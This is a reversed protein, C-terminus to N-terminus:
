LALQFLDCWFFLPIKLPTPLHQWVSSILNLSVLSLSLSQPCRSVLESQRCQLLLNLLLPLGISLVNMMFKSYQLWMGFLWSEHPILILPYPLCWISLGKLSRSEKKTRHSLVLNILFNQLIVIILDPQGIVNYHLGVHSALDLSRSYHSLSGHPILHHDPRVNHLCTHERGEWGVSESRNSNYLKM